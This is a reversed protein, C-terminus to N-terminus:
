AATRPEDALLLDRLKVVTRRPSIKRILHRYHRKFTDRSIGLIRAAEPVSVHKELELATLAVSTFVTNSM